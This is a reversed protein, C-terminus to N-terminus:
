SYITPAEDGAAHRNPHRDVDIGIPLDPAGLILACREALVRHRNPEAADPQHSWNALADHRVNARRAPGFAAADASLM